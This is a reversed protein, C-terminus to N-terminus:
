KAEVFIYKGGAAEVLPQVRASDEAKGIFLVMSGKVADPKAGTFAAVMLDAMKASDPSGFALLNGPTVTREVAGQVNELQRDYQTKGDQDQPTPETSNKPLYYGITRDTVGDQHQGAVQGLYTKWAADDGNAPATLVVAAKPAEGGADEDEEPSQCAALGFTMLAILMLAAPKRSM